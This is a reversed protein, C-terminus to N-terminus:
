VGGNFVRPNEVGCIIGFLWPPYRFQANVTCPRRRFVFFDCFERAARQAAGRPAGLTYQVKGPGVLEIPPPFFVLNVGLHFRWEILEIRTERTSM